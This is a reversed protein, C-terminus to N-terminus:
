NSTAVLPSAYILTEDDLVSRCFELVSMFEEIRECVVIKENGQNSYLIFRRATTDVVCRTLYDEEQFM